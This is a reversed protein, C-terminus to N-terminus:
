SKIFDYKLSRNVSPRTKFKYKKFYKLADEVHWRSEKKFLVDFIGFMGKSERKHYHYMSAKPFYVVTYGNEWFSRPWDVDNMYLFLNEDMYGVKDLYKKHGMVASGMLWDVEQTNDLNTDQMLFHRLAKKGFPLHGLFTRRYLITLPSPFRFCSYQPSGNFNLLRPGVLGVGPHSEIYTYLSEISNKLPIIDPNLILFFDGSSSKIGENVGRTFGINDKFQVLKVERFEESIVNRTEASSEVDVVIIEKKFNQDLVRDLSKLCLRLLAPNKFNIIIISLM